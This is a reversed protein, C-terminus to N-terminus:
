RPCCPSTRAPGGRRVFGGEVAELQQSPAAFAVGHAEGALHHDHAVPGRSEVGGAGRQAQAGRFHHDDGPVFLVGDGGPSLIEGGGQFLADPELEASRGLAHLYGGPLHLADRAGTESPVPARGPLDFVGVELHRSGRHHQRIVLRRRGRGLLTQLGMGEGSPRRALTDECGAVRGGPRLRDDVGHGAALAGGQGDVGPQASM